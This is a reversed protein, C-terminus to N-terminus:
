TSILFDHISSPCLLYTSRFNTFNTPFFSKKIFSKRPSPLKYFNPNRKRDISRFVRASNLNNKGWLFNILPFSVRAVFTKPEFGRATYEITLVNKVYIQQIFQLAQKFLSSFLHFLPRPHGMYVFQDLPGGFRHFKRRNFQRRRGIMMMCVMVM